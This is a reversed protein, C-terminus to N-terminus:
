DRYFPVIMFSNIPKSKPIFSTNLEDWIMTTKKFGQTAGGRGWMEEGEFSWRESHEKIKRRWANFFLAEEERGGERLSLM